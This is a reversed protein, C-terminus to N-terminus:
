VPEFGEAGLLWEQSLPVDMSSFGIHFIYGAPELVWTRTAEDYYALDADELEFVLTAMEQPELEVRGFGKLEKVPRVVSSNRYGVYLQAVTAGAVSGANTLDVNVEFGNDFREVFLNDADFSTYSLGFGFPFAPTENNADVFKYGQLLEHDVSLSEIDWPVLQEMSVPVTIPLRGSPCVDGFLVRAVAHGGQCGPYWAMLIADAKDLWGNVQIASGGELVVVVQSAAASARIILDIQHDPLELNARDGGRALESGEAEQQQTPIFEGEEKYTLGAVVVAVDHNALASFDADSPYYTVKSARARIGDLPTVVNTSTVFSSGRDGLNAWDALDGVVAVDLSDALPLLDGQNRLLVMSQEAATRALALHDDCEVVSEPPVELKDLQWGLKMFLARGASRTITEETLDGAEIADILNDDTYRYPAPMEIDMGSNLAPATSRTGLFWDSEVFGKFGWDERLINTLLGANEGCYIDNVKNYASMVSAAGAEQVARKFHPLYIEHLVRPPLNASMEFRTFEVNNAAFHKPSALVHNQVGSIFAAGMAGTHFTDESYTEQARGWGPHRLLNITPALLVNGGRAAVELGIARGVDRELEVNFTAARAIAVPFATAKGTRAGRPGDVMRFTPIGLEENGGAHYLGAIPQAQTGRIEHFKQGLTMSSLLADVKVQVAEADISLGRNGAHIAEHDFALIKRTM